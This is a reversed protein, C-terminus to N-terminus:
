KAGAKIEDNSLELKDYVISACHNYFAASDLLERPVRVGVKMLKDAALTCESAKGYLEMACIRVATAFGNRFCEESM